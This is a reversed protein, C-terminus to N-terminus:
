PLVPQLTRPWLTLIGRGRCVGQLLEGWLAKWGHRETFVQAPVRTEPTNFKTLTPRRAAFTRLYWSFPTPTLFGCFGRKRSLKFKRFSSYFRALAQAHGLVLLACASSLRALGLVLRARTSCLGLALRVCASCLGLVLRALDLWASCLDLVLRACASCLALM